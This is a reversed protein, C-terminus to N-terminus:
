CSRTKIKSFGGARARKDCAIIVPVNKFEMDDMWRRVSSLKVPFTLDYSALFVTDEKVNTELLEKM